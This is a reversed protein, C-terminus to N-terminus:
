RVIGEDPGHPAVALWLLVAAVMAAASTWLAPGGGVRQYIAGFAVGAPLVALGTLAHYVGFGRGTRVPALRAVLSREASETLGAVLGFVLFAVVTWLPGVRLGMAAVVAAFLVGGAAVVRRPGLRDSLVGGPYSAASRVVHLAAWVLPVLAVAVGADQLRLL